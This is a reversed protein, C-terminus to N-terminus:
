GGDCKYTGKRHLSGKYFNSNKEITKTKFPTQCEEDVPSIPYNVYSVGVMSKM